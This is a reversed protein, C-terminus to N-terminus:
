KNMLLIFLDKYCEFVCIENLERLERATLPEDNEFLLYNLCSLNLIGIIIQNNYTNIIRKELNKNNKYGSQILLTKTEDLKETSIKFTENETSTKFIEDKLNMIGLNKFMTNTNNQVASCMKDINLAFVSSVPIFFIYILAFLIFKM